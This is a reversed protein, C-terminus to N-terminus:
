FQSVVTLSFFKGGVDLHGLTAQSMPLQITSGDKAETPALEVASTLTYGLETRLGFRFSSGAYALLDLSLAATTALGWGKDYLERAGERLTLATRSPGLDIRAGAVLHDSYIPYRARGGFSFGLTELQTTMTTFMTGDASGWALNATAWTQLGPVLGLDIKRAYALAGGGLSDSTVANASSSHLARDFSGITLENHPDAAANSAAAVVLLLPSLHAIRM